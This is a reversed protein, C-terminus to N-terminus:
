LHASPTQMDIGLMIETVLSLSINLQFRRVQGLVLVDEWSCFKVIEAIIETPLGLFSHSFIEEEM